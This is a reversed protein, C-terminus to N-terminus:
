CGSVRQPSHFVHCPLAPLHLAATQKIWRGASVEHLMWRQDSPPRALRALNHLTVETINHFLVANETNRQLCHLGVASHQHSYFITIGVYGFIVTVCSLTPERQMMATWWKVSFISSYIHDFVIMKSSKNSNTQRNLFVSSTALSLSQGFKRMKWLKDNLNSQLYFCCKYFCYM